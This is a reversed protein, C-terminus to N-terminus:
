SMNGFQNLIDNFDGNWDPLSSDKVATPATSGVYVTVIKTDQFGFDDSVTLTAQYDGSNAFTHTVFKGVVPDTGDGFNWTYTLPEDTSLVTIMGEKESPFLAPAKRITPTM